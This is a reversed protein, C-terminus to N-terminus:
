DLPMLYAEVDLFSLTYSQSIQGYLLRRLTAFALEFLFNSGLLTLGSAHRLSQVRLVEKLRLLYKSSIQGRREISVWVLSCDALIEDESYILGRVLISPSLLHIGIISASRGPWTSGLQM